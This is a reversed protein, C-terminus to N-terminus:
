LYAPLDFSGSEECTEIIGVCRPRAVRQADLAAIAAFAAYIAYGDDAAGRGYLLDGEIVPKRPGLDDRWGTMEPQKDLHGYFLVTRDNGRGGTAPVDFFLCPTRGEISVIEITTGAILQARCWAEADKIVKRLHGHAAWSADFAPSKAPVKVYDVLRPVVDTDWKRDIFIKLDALNM